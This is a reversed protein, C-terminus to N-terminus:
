SLYVTKILAISSPIIIKRNEDAIKIDMKKLKNEGEKMNVDFVRKNENYSTVSDNFNIITSKLISVQIM